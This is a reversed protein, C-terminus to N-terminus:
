QAKDPHYVLVAKHYAKKIAEVDASDAWEPTFGLMDYLTYNKLNQPTVGQPIVIREEPFENVKKGGDVGVKTVGGLRKLAERGLPLATDDIPASLIISKLVKSSGSSSSPPAALAFM